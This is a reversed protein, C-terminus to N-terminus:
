TQVDTCIKPFDGKRVKERYDAEDLSSQYRNVWARLDVYTWIKKDTLLIMMERDLSRIITRVQEQESPTSIMTQFKEEMKNVFELLKMDKPKQMLRIENLISEDTASGVHTLFETRFHNWNGLRKACSNFWSLVNGELLNPIWLKYDEKSIDMQAM